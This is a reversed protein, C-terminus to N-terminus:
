KILRVVSGVLVQGFPGEQLTLESSGASLFQVKALDGVLAIYGPSGMDLNFIKPSAEFFPHDPIGWIM